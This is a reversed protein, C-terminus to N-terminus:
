SSRRSRPRAGRHPWWAEINRRMQARGGDQDNLHFKVAGCCGAEPAVDGPHRRCRARARASNINPMMAPQVCGALLLV